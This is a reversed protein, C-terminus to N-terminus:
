RSGPLYIRGAWLAPLDQRPAARSKKLIAVIVRAMDHTTIPAHKGTGWPGQILGGRIMPAIWLLWDAFFTPRLHATAVGSWDFVQESLWHDQAAHSPSDSRSSIQSMNVIGEIGSEKAAQEFIATAQAIGPRIPYCFYAARTGRLAARIAELDLLDGEVVEVGWIKSFSRAIMGETHSPEYPIEM